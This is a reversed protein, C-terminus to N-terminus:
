YHFQMLTVPLCLLGHFLLFLVRRDFTWTRIEGKIEREFRRVSVVRAVGM